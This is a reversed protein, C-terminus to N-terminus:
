KFNIKKLFNIFIIYIKVQIMINMYTKKDSGSVISRQKLMNKYMETQIETLGVYIYIEKKPPLTKEVETKIRRLIFPKILRNLKNLLELNHKEKEEVSMNQFEETDAFWSDFVESSEFFEPM